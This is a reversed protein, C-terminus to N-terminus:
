YAEWYARHLTSRFYDPRRSHLATRLFMRLITRHGMKRFRRNTSYVGGHIVRFRSREIQRTLQFDEAYLVQEDFWGVEEFRSKDVLMFM